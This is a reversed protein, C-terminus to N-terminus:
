ATEFQLFISIVLKKINRSLKEENGVNKDNYRTNGVSNSFIEWPRFDAFKWEIV